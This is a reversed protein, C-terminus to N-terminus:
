QRSHKHERFDSDTDTKKFIDGTAPIKVANKKANEIQQFICFNSFVLSKLNEIIKMGISILDSIRRKEKRLWWSIFNLIIFPDIKVLCAKM